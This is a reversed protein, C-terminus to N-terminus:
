CEAQKQAKQDDNASEHEHVCRTSFIEPASERHFTSRTALHEPKAIDVHLHAEKKQIEPLGDQEQALDTQEVKTSKFTV